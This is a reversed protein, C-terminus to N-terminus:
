PHRLSHTQCRWGPPGGGRRDSTFRHYMFTHYRLLVPVPVPDAVPSLPPSDDTTGVEVRLGVSPLPPSDDEEVTMEEEEELIPWPEDEDTISPVEPEPVLVARGVPPESLVVPRLVAFLVTVPVPVAILEPFAVAVEFPVLLLLVVPPSSPADLLETTDDSLSLLVTLPVAVVLLM